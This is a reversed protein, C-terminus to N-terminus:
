NVPAFLPLDIFFHSGEGPKSQVSIHGGLLSTVINYCINLGLGSGGQGLKTTFFPDFIRKIHSDPIGMGDDHFELLVHQNPMLRALLRIHGGTKGDFAHLLANNILNAIVQGLPGPYSNLEIDAAIAQTLRHEGLKIKGALTACIEHCTQQLNFRRQQQTTRDVAVQKFSNVLEAASSLGLMILHSSESSESIFKQLDTRRLKKEALNQNIRRTKDQLSSAMMLSNGIPTNLEHAVGAVLSGLAALKEQEVLRAQAEKLQRYARANDLAIASYACLTRFILRQREAYAGAHLSQVGMVGLVRQGIILPAYLASLNHHTDPVTQGDNQTFDVVVERQERLSVIPNANSNAIELRAYPINKDQEFGYVRELYRGDDTRLYVAFASADLLGHVHRRLVEFVAHDNLHATIEQGIAGLQALNTSTQQLIEARAGESAALQRHHEAEAHIRETNQRVQMALAHRAADQGHLAQRAANARRAYQFAMEFQGTAAYAKALEDLLDDPITFGEIQAALQHAQNLYGLSSHSHPLSDVLSDVLAATGADAVIKALARYATIQSHHDHHMQALALSQQVAEAAAEAQGLALLAQGRGCHAAIQLNIQHLAQARTLLQSFLDLAAQNQQRDLELRAMNQLTIAYQRSAPILSLYGLAEQLFQHALEPQNQSRLVDATQTLAFGAGVPWNRSRAHNLGRVMWDLASQHDNLKAFTTGVNLASIIGRRVQGTELAAEYSQTFYSGAKEFDNTFLAVLGWFGAVWTWLTAPIQGQETQFRTRWRECAAGADRLSDMLAMAAQLIDARAGDHNRALRYASQWYQDRQALEGLDNALWGMLWYADIQGIVDGCSQFGQLVQQAVVVSENAQVTLWAAEARVLQLRSLAQLGGPQSSAATDAILTQAEDALTLAHNTDRQCYYTALDLLLPLRASDTAALLGAELQALQENHVFLDMAM